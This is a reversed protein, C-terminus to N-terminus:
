GKGNQKARLENVERLLAEYEKRCKIADSCYDLACILAAEVRSCNKATTHIARMSRNLRDSDERLMEASEDTRVCLDIGDITIIRKEKVIFEELSLFNM